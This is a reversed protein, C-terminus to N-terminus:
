MGKPVTPDVPGVKPALALAIVTTVALVGVVVWGIIPLADVQAAVPDATGGIAVLAATLVALWMATGFQSVLPLLGAIGGRQEPAVSGIAHPQVTNSFALGVGGFTMGIALLLYSQQAYGVAYLAASAILAAMAIAVPRRIGMRDLLKGAAGSVVVMSLTAPLLAFGTIGPAFGLVEQVYRALFVGGLTSPLFRVFIVVLALAVARNKAVRPNVLPAPHRVEWILWITAIVLGSGIAGLVTPSTLGDAGAQMFGDILTAVALFLLVAGVIDLKPADAPIERKPLDLRRLQLLAVVATLMGPVFVWAWGAGQVLLGAIIPGLATIGMTIAFAKGTAAGRQAPPFVDVLLATGAPVFLAAGAGAIFRAVFLLTSSGMLGSAVALAASVLFILLGASFMPVRGKRDGLWGGLTVLGALSLFALNMVWQSATISIGLDAQISPLAVTAGATDLAWASLAAAAAILAIRQEPTQAAPPTAAAPATM